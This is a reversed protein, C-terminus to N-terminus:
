LPARSHKSVFDCILKGLTDDKDRLHFLVDKHMRGLAQYQEVSCGAKRLAAAFDKAMDELTAVEWESNVLLFPPLGRHVHSLPSAQQLVERDEGFAMRFPNFAKGARALTSTVAAVM